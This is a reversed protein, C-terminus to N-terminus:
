YSGRENRHRCGAAKRDTVPKQAMKLPATILYRHNVCYNGRNAYHQHEAQGAHMYHDGQDNAGQHAAQGAAQADLGRELGEIAAQPATGGHGHGVGQETSEGHRNGFGPQGM